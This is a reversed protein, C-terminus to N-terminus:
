TPYTAPSSEAFCRARKLWQNFKRLQISHEVPAERVLVRVNSNRDVDEVWSSARIAKLGRAVAENLTEAMVEATHDIGESDRVTVRCSRVTM